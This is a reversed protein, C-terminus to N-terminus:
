LFFSLTFKTIKSGILSMNESELSPKFHRKCRLQWIQWRSKSKCLKFLASDLTNVSHKARWLDLFLFFFTRYTQSFMVVIKKMFLKYQGSFNKRSTFGNFRLRCLFHSSFVIDTILETRPWNWALFGLGFHSFKEVACSKLGSSLSFTFDIFIEFVPM